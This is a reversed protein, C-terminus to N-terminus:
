ARYPLLARARRLIPEEFYRWSVTALVFSIVLALLTIWRPKAGVLAVRPDYFLGSLVGLVPMHILYLGYSIKGVFALPRMELASRLVSREPQIALLVLLGYCIALLLHLAAGLSTVYLLAVSLGLGVAFVACTRVGRSLVHSKSLMLISVLGGAAFEDLRAIPLLTVREMLGEGGVILAFARIGVSLCGGLLLLISVSGIAAGLKIILPFAAYMQEEIALSWSVSLFNISIGFLMMYVNQLFLPYTVVGAVDGFLRPFTSAGGISISLVFVSLMLTYLPLTRALRRVYFVRYYGVKGVAELLIGTILFGSLVFFLDVGSWGIRIPSILYAVLGGPTASAFGWGYHFALVM